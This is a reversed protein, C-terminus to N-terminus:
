PPTGSLPRSDQADVVPGDDYSISALSEIGESASRALALLWLPKEGSAVGGFATANNM